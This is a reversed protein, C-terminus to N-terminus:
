AMGLLQKAAKVYNVNDFGSLWLAEVVESLASYDESECCASEMMAGNIWVEAYECLVGNVTFGYRMKEVNVTVLEAHRRAIAIFVEIPYLDATLDISVKLESLANALAEHRLPFPFTGRPQFIEYGEPTEGKKVKIDLLGDRVRVIADHPQDSVLYVELPM